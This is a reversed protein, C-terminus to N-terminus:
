GFLNIELDSLTKDWFYENNLDFDFYTMLEPVSYFCTDKLFRKYKDFFLPDNISQELKLNFLFGFYYPFNYYSINPFFYHRILTWGFACETTLDHKKIGYWFELIEYYLKSIEDSSFMKNDFADEMNKEFFFRSAVMILLDFSKIIQQNNIIDNFEPYFNKIHNIVVSEAFMSASEAVVTPYEFLQSPLDKIQYHHFAHGLEHALTVVCDITGNFQMFVITKKEKNFFRAYSSAIKSSSVSTFLLDEKVMYDVFDSMESSISSFSKKIISLADDLSFCFNNNEKIKKFRLSEVTMISKNFDNKLYDLLKLRLSSKNVIANNLNNLISVDIKNKQLSYNLLNDTNYELLSLKKKKVLLEYLISVSKEANSNLSNRCDLSITNDSNFLKSGIVSSINKEKGNVIVKDNLINKQYYFYLSNKYQQDTLLEDVINKSQVSNFKDFFFNQIRSDTIVSHNKSLITEIIFTKKRILNIISYSKDFSNISCDLDSQTQYYSEASSLYDSINIWHDVLENIKVKSYCRSYKKIIIISQNLMINLKKNNYNDNLYKLFKSM